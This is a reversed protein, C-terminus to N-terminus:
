SEAGSKYSVGLFQRISLIKVETFTLKLFVFELIVFFGVGPRQALRAPQVGGEVNQGNDGIGLFLYAGVTVVVPNHYLKAFFVSSGIYLNHAVVVLGIVFQEGEHLVVALFHHFGRRALNDLM